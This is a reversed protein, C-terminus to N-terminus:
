FFVFLNAFFTTPKADFLGWLSTSPYFSWLVINKFIKETLRRIKRGM